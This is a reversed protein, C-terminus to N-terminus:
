LRKPRRRRQSALDRSIQSYVALNRQYLHAVERTANAQGPASERRRGGTGAGQLLMVLMAVLLAM